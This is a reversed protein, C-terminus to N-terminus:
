LGRNLIIIFLNGYFFIKSLVYFCYFFSYSFYWKIDSNINMVICWIYIFYVSLKFLYIVINLFM